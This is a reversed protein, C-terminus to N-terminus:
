QPMRMPDQMQDQPIAGPPAQGGTAQAPQAGMRPTGPQGEMGPGSGGPTGPVGAAMQPGGGMIMHHMFLHKRITGHPDGTAQLAQMHALMHAQHNDFRHAQLDMGAILMANELEPNQDLQKKMDKFIMPAMRAGFANEVLMNIAPTLDLEYGPYLAPPIGRLVNVAATQQQIQQANRAAEVGYWRLFIKEGLQIPDVREMQATVGLEGYQRVSIADDRYQHDLELMRQVLPTLIGEELTTVADATTLLDVQQEQAVEAQTPKKSTTTQTMMAPNVGLTQFIQNRANLVIQFADKWLDPFKAFQTDNPSTEWIAALSLIMSGIRPNKVPDTMVIPMLAYAASDMGENVADNALLQFDYVPQVKSIGKFAGHEKEVPASIIPLNDSWLPNRKCSLCTDRGGYLVKYIRKKGNVTIKTWSEYVLAHMGRADRKVGAAELSEEAQDRSEDATRKQKMQGLFNKGKEKDIVGDAMLQKIKSKSWRRLVTVSGGNEIAEEISDATQPLVLLDADSILEVVPYGVKITAEEIDMITENVDPVEVGEEESLDLEEEDSDPNDNDVVLSISPHKAVKWAVDKEFTQWDVYVTYQGEVDGMKCLAPVVQTRLKAKRIYHEVLAVMSNASSADTTVLEVYRGSQPFIQNTFRTKRANVADYVFPIFVQSTGSYFQNPGLKSHYHDWFDVNRDTRENQDQWGELIDDYLSALTAQLGRDNAYQKNRGDPQDSDKSLKQAKNRLDLSEEDKVQM